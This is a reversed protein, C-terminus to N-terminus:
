KEKKIRGSGDLEFSLPTLHLSFLHTQETNNKGLTEKNAMKTTLNNLNDISFIFQKKSRKRLGNQRSL